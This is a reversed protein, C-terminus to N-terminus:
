PHFWGSVYGGGGGAAGEGLVVGTRSGGVHDSQLAGPICVREATVGMM